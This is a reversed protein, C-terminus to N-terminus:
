AAPPHDEQRLWSEVERAGHVVAAVFIGGPRAEYIIVYRGEVLLRAMPGLEPRASGMSPQSAALDAKEMLRMLLADAAPENDPAISRWIDRLDAEARPSFIAKAV